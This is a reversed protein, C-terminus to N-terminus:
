ESSFVTGLFCIITSSLLIFGALSFNGTMLVAFGLIGMLTAVILAVRLVCVPMTMKEKRVNHRSYKLVMM